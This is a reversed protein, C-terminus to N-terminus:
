HTRYYEMLDLVPPIKGMSRIFGSAQGRHHTGHNVLHLIIQWAASRYPVGKFTFYAIEGDATEPTLLDVYHKWREWVKPWEAHLTALTAQDDYPRATLSNGHMREIWALDGGYLHLLTGLISKDATGFDRTLEDPSLAGAADLILRNAWITYEIHIKLTEISVHM